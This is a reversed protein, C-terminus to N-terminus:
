ETPRWGGAVKELISQRIGLEAVSGAAWRGLTARGESSVSLQNACEPFWARFSHLRLVTDSGFQELIRTLGDQPVGHTSIKPFIVWKPLISPTLYLFETTPPAKRISNWFLLIPNFWPEGTSVVMPTARAMLTVDKDKRGASRDRVASDTLWFEGVQRHDSYRLSSLLMLSLFSCAVRVGM